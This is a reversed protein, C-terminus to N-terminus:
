KWASVIVLRTVAVVLSVAAELGVVGPTHAGGVGPVLPVEGVRLDVVISLSDHRTFFLGRSSHPTMLASLPLSRHPGLTLLRTINDFM